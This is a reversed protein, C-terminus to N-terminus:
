AVVVDKAALGRDTTIMDFNVDQNVELTKFGAMKIDSFHVYVDNQTEESVIFGYGKAASFWKVTGRM